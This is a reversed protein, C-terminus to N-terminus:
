CEWHNIIQRGIYETYAPPIAQTLEKKNMWDIGMAERWKGLQYSYSNGGNGPVTAYYSQKHKKLKAYEQKYDNKHSLMYLTGNSGYVGVASGERLSLRHKMHPPQLVTLGHLEFIRHRLVRLGFMEGCLRLDKRLPAGVVNEIIFPKGVRQLKERLPTLVDPYQKGQNRYKKSGISFLQCPPSAHYIDADPLDIDLVDSEIFRFPYRPQKKHDIGIVEFGADAYGKSCGGAGCCLDVLVPKM